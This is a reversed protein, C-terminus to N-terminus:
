RRGVAHTLAQSILERAEIHKMQAAVLARTAFGRPFFPALYKTTAAARRDGDRQQDFIGLRQSVPLDVEMVNAVIEAAVVLQLFDSIVAAYSTNLM